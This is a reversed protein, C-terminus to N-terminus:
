GGGPPRRRGHRGAPSGDAAPLELVRRFLRSVVLRRAQDPDAWVSAPAEQGDAGPGAAYAPAAEAASPWAADFVRVQWRQHSFTHQLEGAPALAAPRLAAQQTVARRAAQEWPEGPQLEVAPLGWTGALLGRDPRRVLLVRGGPDRVRVAAVAVPRPPRRATKVPLEQQLRRAWAGCWRQVPCAQCLPRLRCVRSGLEMLAQTFDAAQGEPIMRRAWRQLERYGSAARPPDWLVLLRSLVRAANGDIAPEPLGFAISAVAGAMYPGVGPLQRLQRPDSPVKGGHREVIARAAQHLRRARAYYGLGQWLQLVEEPDAAALAQVTPFREMFRQFYPVVTPVQTQQLMAEAVLVAYPDPQRRWPLDRRNAAFWAVLAEGVFRLDPEQAPPRGRQPRADGDSEHALWTMVEGVHAVAAEPCAWPVLDRDAASRRELVRGLEQALTGRQQLLEPREWPAARRLEPDRALQWPMVWVARLGARRAAAVDYLLDDGVHVAEPASADSCVARFAQLDPKSTGTLDPASVAEWVPELGLAQLVPQQYRWLGNTVAVLRHGQERLWWLTAPVTPHTCGAYGVQAVYHRVRQAVDLEGLDCGAQRAVHRFIDDWDYPAVPDYAGPREKLRLRRRHEELIAAFAASADGGWGTALMASVEPFIGDRFPNRLIVGDLDFSVLM